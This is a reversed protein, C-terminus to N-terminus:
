ILGKEFRLAFTTKKIKFKWANKLYSKALLHSIITEKSFFHFFHPTLLM